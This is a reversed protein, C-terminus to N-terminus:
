TLKADQPPQVMDYAHSFTRAPNRGLLQLIGSMYINLPSINGRSSEHLWGLSERCGTENSGMVAEIQDVGRAGVVEQGAQDKNGLPREEMNGMNGRNGTNWLAEKVKIGKEYADLCSGTTLLM